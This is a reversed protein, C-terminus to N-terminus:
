RRLPSAQYAINAQHRFPLSIDVKIDTLNDEEIIFPKMWWSRPDAILIYFIRYEVKRAAPSLSKLMRIQNRGKVSVV